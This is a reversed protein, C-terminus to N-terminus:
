KKQNEREIQRIEKLKEVMKNITEPNEIGIPLTVQTKEWSIKLDIKKDNVPELEMTFREVSEALNKVPVSVELVNLKEDYNYAGWGQFDKNLIVKWEQANPIIFLAYTGASINKGGFNVGQGFTIKTSANAGARWVKDFPVIGGFIKRGKAEPRGYDISIKSISFQQELKQRPSVAPLTYEQASFVASIGLFM